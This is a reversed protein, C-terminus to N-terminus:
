RTTFVITNTAGCATTASAAGTVTTAGIKVTEYYRFTKTTLDVCAREPVGSYTINFGDNATGSVTAPTVVVGNTLWSNKIYNVNSTRMRDPFAGSKIVTKNDIGAYDGQSDFMQRIAGTLANLNKVEDGVKNSDNATNFYAIAAIAIVAMIGISMVLELLTAGVQNKISKMSM